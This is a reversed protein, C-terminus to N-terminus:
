ISLDQYRMRILPLLRKLINRTVELDDRCHRKIASSARKDGKVAKVYLAPIDLGEVKLDKKINLFKAVHYLDSRVLRLNSKVFEALDIHLPTYLREVRLGHKISRAAIFPLDFIRGNWTFMVEYGAIEELFEDLVRAERRPTESYFWKFKGNLEMLGGGVFIGVDADLATSEIDLICTRTRRTKSKM